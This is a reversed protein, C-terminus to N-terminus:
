RIAEVRRISWDDTAGAGLDTGGLHTSAPTTAVDGGFFASGTSGGAARVSKITSAPSEVDLMGYGADWGGTAPVKGTVKGPVLQVGKSFNDPGM